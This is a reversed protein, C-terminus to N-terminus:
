RAAPTPQTKPPGFGPGYEIKAIKQEAKLQDALAKQVGQRRLLTTAVPRAQETNVPVSESSRIVSAIIQGNQPVLFPEGPPLAAIQAAVPPPLAATDMANSGSQFPVGSSTLAAEIEAMTKAASLKKILAPDKTGPFVIQDLQYRKRGGFLTSNQAIFADAASATPLPLGKGVKTALLDVLIGDTTRQVQALYTPSQDLGDKKAKAVLLKREIVRQLLQSMIAKRDATPPITAGNLEANLEQQTVEQGNVIAVVQGGVKKACGGTILALTVAGALMAAKTTM